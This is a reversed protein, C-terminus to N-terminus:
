RFHLLWKKRMIQTVVSSNVTVVCFKSEMRIKQFFDIQLKYIEHYIYTPILLILYNQFIKNLGALASTGISIIAKITGEGHLSYPLPAHNGFFLLSTFTWQGVVVSFNRWHVDAFFSGLSSTEETPFHMLCKDRLSININYRSHIYETYQLLLM